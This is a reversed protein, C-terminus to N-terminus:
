KDGKTPFLYRVAVFLMGTIQAITATVLINFSWQELNFGLWHTAQLFACLFIVATEIALFRFLRNLVIRKLTINQEIDDNKLREARTLEDAVGTRKPEASPARAVVSGVKKSLQTIYSEAKPTQGAM